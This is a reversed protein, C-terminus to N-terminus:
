WLQQRRQSDPSGDCTTACGPFGNWCNRCMAAHLHDKQHDKQFCCSLFLAFSVEQCVCGHVLHFVWCINPLSPVCPAFPCVYQHPPRVSTVSEFAFRSTTPDDFSPELSIIEKRHNSNAGYEFMFRGGSLVLISPNMCGINNRQLFLFKAYVLM